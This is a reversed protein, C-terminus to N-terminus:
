HRKVSTGCALWGGLHEEEEEEDWEGQRQRTTTADDSGATEYEKDIPGPWLATVVVGARPQNVNADGERGRRGSKIEDGILRCDDRVIRRM